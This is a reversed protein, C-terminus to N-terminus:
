MLMLTALGSAKVTWDAHILVLDTSGLAFRWWRHACRALKPIFITYFKVIAARIYLVFALHAMATVFKRVLTYIQGRGFRPASVVRGADAKLMNRSM